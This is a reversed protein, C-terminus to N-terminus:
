ANKNNSERSYVAEAVQEDVKEDIKTDVKDEISADPNPEEKFGAMAGGILGGAVAGWPGAVAGGMAGKAAGGAAAKWSFNAPSDGPKHADGKFPFSSADAKKGNTYKMKYPTKMNNINKRKKEV